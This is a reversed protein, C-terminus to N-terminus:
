VTPETMTFKLAVQARVTQPQPELELALAEDGGGRGSFGMARAVLHTEAAIDSIEVLRVLRAGVAEAYDRARAIADTIAARRAERHAPSDPRVSWWPGYVRTQEQNGLRLMLEGLVDFDTVTVTTTLSGQYATVRESRSKKVDPHLYMGSTERREVADAYEALLARLGEARDTLRSLATQRDADRAMVEVSFQAIEPPVDRRVEGRVAVIPEDM